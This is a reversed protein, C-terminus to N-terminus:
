IERYDKIPKIKPLPKKEDVVKSSDVRKRIIVSKDYDSDSTEVDSKKSNGGSSEVIAISM